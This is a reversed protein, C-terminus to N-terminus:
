AQPIADAVAPNTRTCLIETISVALPAILGWRRIKARNTALAKLRACPVSAKPWGASAASGRTLGRAAHPLNSGLGPRAFLAAAGRFPTPDAGAEIRWAAKGAQEIERSKM